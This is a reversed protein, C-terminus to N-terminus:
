NYRVKYKKVVRSDLQYDLREMWEILESFIFNTDVNWKIVDVKHLEGICDHMNDLQTNVFKRRPYMNGGLGEM